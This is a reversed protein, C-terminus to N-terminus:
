VVRTSVRIMMRRRRLEQFFPGVPVIKEPPWVGPERIAGEAIMRAVIAPPCGTDVDGASAKWTPNARAICDATVAVRRGARRGEAVVRLIEVDRPQERPAVLPKFDKLRWGAKWRREFERVFARDYGLKFDCRKVGLSAPLTAVESHRTALSWVKGFPRGYDHREWRTRPPIRHFRGGAFEFAPLTLEEVVTQPSFGFVFESTAAGPDHWASRVRVAEVRDLREAARRALVNTIGPSGGMGLVAVLGARRFRDHLRLQRRTFVFLGGLDLYPCRARLAAEMVSLNFDHQTCNVVVAAGRLVRALPGPRSADAFCGRVRRSRFSRAFAMAKPADFDAIVIRAGRHFDFLDRVAIRGMAGCGGLVVFERM